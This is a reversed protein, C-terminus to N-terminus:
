EIMPLNRHGGSPVYGSYKMWPTSRPSSSTTQYDRLVRVFTDRQVVLALFLVPILTAAAAFFDGNFASAATHGPPSAITMAALIGCWIISTSSVRV